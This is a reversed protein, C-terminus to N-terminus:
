FAVECRPPDYGNCHCGYGTCDFAERALLEEIVLDFNENFSLNQNLEKM